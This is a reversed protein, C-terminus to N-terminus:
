SIAWVLEFCNNVPGQKPWIKSGVSPFFCPLTQGIPVGQHKTDPFHALLEDFVMPKVQTERSGPTGYVVFTCACMESLPSWYVAFDGYFWHNKIAQKCMERFRFMLFGTSFRPRKLSISSPGSCVWWFGITKYLNTAKPGTSFRPWKLSISSPGSSSIAM